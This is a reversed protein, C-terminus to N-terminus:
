LHEPFLYQRFIKLYHIKISIEVLVLKPYLCQINMMEKRDMQDTSCIRFSIATFNKVNAFDSM